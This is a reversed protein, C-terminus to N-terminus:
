GLSVVEREWFFRCRTTQRKGDDKGLNKKMFTKSILVRVNCRLSGCLLHRIKANNSPAILVFNKLISIQLDYIFFPHPKKFGM